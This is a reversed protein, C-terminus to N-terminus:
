QNCMLSLRVSFPCCHVKYITSRNPLSNRYDTMFLSTLGLSDIQRDAHLEVEVAHKPM